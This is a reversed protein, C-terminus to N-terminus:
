LIEDFLQLDKDIQKKVSASFGQNASVVYPWGVVLVATLMPLLPITWLAWGEAGATLRLMVAVGGWVMATFVCMAILIIRLTEHRQPMISEEEDV